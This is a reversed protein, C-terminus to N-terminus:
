PKAGMHIAPLAAGDADASSGPLDLWVDALHWEGWKSPMWDRVNRGLGVYEPLAVLPLVRRDELLKRESAYLHELDSSANGREAPAGLLTSVLTELEVRPSLSSYHWVFLHLAGAPDAVSASAARVNHLPSRNLVQLPITAQRANVAVREGLLKALDGPADVRLRLPEPGRPSNPPLTARIEKAREPSTEMTFLFAYGSLWQPLLAAAPEAQKQLLVNAMTQRDLSLSLAERLKPGSAAPQADDFSLGYLTIPSSSWVRQNEQQARRVLDPAIEILDVKGLQLDFLQRLPLVGLTLDIGDVFPRGSWTAENARFHLPVLKPAPIQPAANADASRTTAPKEPKSQSASSESLFFPGTGLLTGEPQIRYVFFRGSALEELLDLTPESCQIVVSDSAAIIQQGPPLLPQLAAAVDAATLNAGDSFKVGSRVVFQWRKFAIDHTWESALQPQFRGYNDLSVLRDFVLAALKENTAFDSTGIKWERPDISIANVSLEIRLTGGYKPRLSAKATGLAVSLMSFIVILRLCIFKM